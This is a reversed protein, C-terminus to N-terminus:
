SVPGDEKRGDAEEEVRDGTIRDIVYIPRGKVEDYIRAVYEGIVGIGTLNVGGFFSMTILQSAWATVARGTVLKHYLAFTMVALSLGISAVGLFRFVFLPVYTFSFVANMALTWLGRIGVRTSRDYRARRPAGVSVQRFGVWARLGPLYRNREPLTRLKHVVRRDMLAFNGADLPLQVNAMWRLARYFLWFLFRAPAAEARATRRAYVVDFGERWKDLFDGFAKPDDQMDADMLIVADGSAHDLGATVAAAQGFNRALHVVKIEGPFRAALDDLAEATGDRSGDDVFVLEHRGPLDLAQLADRVEQAFPAVNRVENYIPAVVSLVFDSGIERTM